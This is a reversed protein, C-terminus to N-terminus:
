NAYFWTQKKDIENNVGCLLVRKKRNEQYCVEKMIIIKIHCAIINIMNLCFLSKLKVKM